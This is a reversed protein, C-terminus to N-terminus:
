IHEVSKLEQITKHFVDIGKGDNGKIIADIGKGIGSAMQQIQKWESDNENYTRHRDASYLYTSASSIIYNENITMKTIMTAEGSKNYSTNQIKMNTFDVLAVDKGNNNKRPNTVMLIVNREDEMILISTDANGSSVSYVDNYENVKDKLYDYKSYQIIKENSNNVVCFGSIIIVLILFGISAFIIIGKNKVQM